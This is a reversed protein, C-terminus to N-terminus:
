FGNNQWLIDTNNYIEIQSKPIPMVLNHNDLTYGLNTFHEVALGLRVLDFWRCGEYVFERGREDALEQIFAKKDTTTFDALGARKRTKNLYTCAEALENNGACAEAYMLVVDSYRILPYDNGVITTYTADYTDMWKNMVYVSSSIKNFELLNARNDGEGFLSLTPVTPVLRDAAVGTNTTHYYGHGADVSKNYCLAFIIEKNLKNNVDFVKATSTELGFNTNKMANELSTKAETYKGFTLQVKGLLAWAAIDCVRGKESSRKEPLLGAALTLDEVLREYMQAETCRPTKKSEAPTAVTTVIPVVGFTRYLNFYFWSRIFLAEGKYEPLKAFDKGEMHDLVDNCRYVGNYWADWVDNLLGNSANEHFHDLDYRDQTSVAMSELLFEDSRYGIENIIFGSQTKLKYYCAYIGQNFDNETQYFNGETISNSPYQEFFEDSCSVLGFSLAAAAIISFIRKMIKKM